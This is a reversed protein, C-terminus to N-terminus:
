ETVVDSVAVLRHFLEAGQPKRMDLTINRKNRNILDYGRSTRAEGARGTVERMFDGTEPSEIHIVDAGFDALMSSTMPGALIHGVDLVRYGELAQQKPQTIM